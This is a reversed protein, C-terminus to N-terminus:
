FVYKIDTDNWLKVFIEFPLYTSSDHTWSHSNQDMYEHSISSVNLLTISLIKEWPHSCLECFRLPCSRYYRSPTLGRLKYSCCPATTNNPGPLYQRWCLPAEPCSDQGHNQCIPVCFTLGHPSLLCLTHTFVCVQREM